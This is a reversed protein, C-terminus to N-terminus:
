FLLKIWFPPRVRLSVLRSHGSDEALLRFPGKVDWSM